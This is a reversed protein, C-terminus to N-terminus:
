KVNGNDIYKPVVKDVFYTTLNKSKKGLRYTLFTLEMKVANRKYALNLM